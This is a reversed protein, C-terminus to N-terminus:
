FAFGPPLPDCLRRLETRLSRRQEVYRTSTAVNEMQQPDRVLDYLEEEGTAYRVLVYRDTHIACFTPAGYSGKAMHEVLFADRWSASPSRLRPLLSRGEAGPATVGALEAFTPALDINLALGEDTRANEILADYRVVFPVGIAEEYVQSKGRLRHEGWFMGNDSTFVIMTNDLRGTDELTDILVAVSRDVSQLTQIQSLRFEDIDRRTEADIRGLRRVHDPKDSVDREDYSITRRPSESVFADRDRREPIAPEHPAHPAFYMFLPQSPETSRIFSVARERLVTTGYDAPDHGFRMADGDAVAAYDYYGGDKFTSFWEDWGPPVYTTVGYGNLYKGFLSTRYGAAHLWTAITSGDRFAPFGGHMDPDNTYVGTTHSYAGTLISSRSPCCLPNVVYGNSFRIGEDVLLRQVSPMFRLTDARQDDTLILVINPLSTRLGRPTPTEGEASAIVPFATAFTAIAVLWTRNRIKTFMPEVERTPKM